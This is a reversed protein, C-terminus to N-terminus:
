NNLREIPNIKNPFENQYIKYFFDYESTTLPSKGNANENTQGIQYIIKVNRSDNYLVDMEKILIIHM